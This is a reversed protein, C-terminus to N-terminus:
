VCIYMYVYMCMIHEDNGVVDVHVGRIHMVQCVVVVITRVCKLLIFVIVDVVRGEWLGVNEISRLNCGLVAQRLITGVKTVQVFEIKESGDELGFCTSGSNRRMFPKVCSIWNRERFEEINELM